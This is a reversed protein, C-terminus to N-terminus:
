AAAALRSVSAHSSYRNGAVPSGHKTGAEPAWRIRPRCTPVPFKGGAHTVPRRSGATPAPNRYGTCTPRTSM